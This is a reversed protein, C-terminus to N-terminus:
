RLRIVSRNWTRAGSTVRIWYIGSPVERGAGDRGNWVLSRATPGPVTDVAHVVRGQADIVQISVPQTAGGTLAPAVRIELRDRFPSPGMSLVPQPPRPGDPPGDPVTGPGLELSDAAMTVPAAKGNNAWLQYMVAGTVDTTNEDRLFEVYEKSTSQYRLEARVSRVTAPLAYVATDWHQGDAYRIGPHEPDVPRGGFGAFAANTFGIPPIRNDKYVSDNLAFHFSPGDSMGLAGALAPSIGLDAEYVTADADHTLVGTAPDYAGSEYVLQGQADRATVHIWMRRGEPYGTPLKHGSHNTVTVQAEYGEPTQEVALDVTAAKQLLSTARQSGDALAGPDAEGPYLDDIQLGMWSSGGTLDHLPLDPRSPAAPDNCGRGFIDPQHCDQCTSVIGDPKNGAFQPAYVGNPFASFRYESFTRELPMLSTSTISDAKQDLPGPAYDAPGTRQFVPNSVDHCTGCFAASRHFPSQLFPHPAVPDPFPGRRRLNPDLVFQGNSYGAPLDGSALANLIALDEPPSIGPKYIPDVMAHCLDCSVGDRDFATLQSGDTPNSRGAVWGFSTHCRLCLDGSSPADQEAVTMCAYFLPDRGAQAMMSGMWNWAPEVEPDYNGHCAACDTHAQFGAVGFPQTGPQHFDRLTTPVRGGPRILITLNANSQDEASNGAADRAVIRVRAGTTPTNHVWWTFSGTNQLHLGLPTWPAAAGDRYYLDVTAVGVDDSATWTILHSTSATWSEGGNPQIVTVVPPQTDAGTTPTLYPTIEAPPIGSTQGVNALTLGPFTPTNSYSAIDTIEALQSYGDGDSDLSEISHIAAQRGQDNNPFGPLATELRLGYPNRAGSGTFQYHCVGCHGQVSPLNDLRSGVAAPYANLLSQRIPNRAEANGAAWALGAVALFLGFRFRRITPSLPRM